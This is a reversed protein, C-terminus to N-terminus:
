DLGDSDDPPERDATPLGVVGGGATVRVPKREAEDKEPKPADPTEEQIQVDVKRALRPLLHVVVVQISAAAPVALLMGPIGFLADGSLLALISLIPHLGVQGGLVRPSIINDFVVQHLVVMSVTVWLMPVPGGGPAAFAILAILATSFIAGLYPVAYLLGAILGLAIAYPRTPEFIALVGMTAVADLLCVLMLGRLYRSFVAAVDAAIGRVDDRKQRPFLLLLKAFIRNYDILAYFGVIPVLILWILNPIMTLLFTGFLQLGKTLLSASAKAKVILPQLIFSPISLKRGLVRIQEAMVRTVDAPQDLHFKGRLQTVVQGIQDAVLPAIVLILGAIAGFVVVYVLTAALWRPVRRAELGDVLPALAVALLLAAGFPLLVSSIRYLVWLVFVILGAWAVIKALLHLIWRESHENLEIAPKTEHSAVLSM